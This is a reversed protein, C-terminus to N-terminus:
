FMEGGSRDRVRGVLRFSSLEDISLREDSVDPNVSKILMTGDLMPYLIKVRLEGALCFAYVKGAIISRPTCDVLITDGDYILPEMSCGSVKFRKCNAPNIGRHIFWEPRYYAKVSNTTEEYTPEFRAGAGFSINFEPISVLDSDDFGEEAVAVSQSYMHEDEGMLWATNVGLYSSARIASKYSISKTKGNFWDVVSPQSVGCYKALGTKTILPNKEKADAYAVNLREALSM